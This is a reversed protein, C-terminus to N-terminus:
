GGLAGPAAGFRVGTVRGSFVSQVGAPTVRQETAIVGPDPVDRRPPQPPQQLVLALVLATPMDPFSGLIPPFTLHRRRDRLM